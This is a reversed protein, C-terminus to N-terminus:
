SSLEDSDFTNPIGPAFPQNGNNTGGVRFGESYLGYIMVDDNVDYSLSIKPLVTDDSQTLLGLDNGNLTQGIVTGAAESPSAHGYQNSILM